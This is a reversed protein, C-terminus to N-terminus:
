VGVLFYENFLFCLEQIFSDAIYPNTIPLILDSRQNIYV